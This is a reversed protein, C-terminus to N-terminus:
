DPLPKGRTEPLFILAIIGVLFFFSMYTCANRFADVRDAATADMPVLAKQLKGLTLPASAAVYRGVNYCFSTGTSRLRIPFLEPLYLAFGAFLALQFFGMVSSMWIDQVGNFLQFFSITAVMAAIFGMAFAPKRGIKQALFTFAIMGFFAGTNQFIGNVGKWYTAASAVEKDILSKMEVTLGDAGSVASAGKAVILDQRLSNTIVEGVLEPSFFGIGWVGIVGAVCLVMGALANKRLRDDGFLSAYSGFKVGTAKGERRAQVWKDPEKLKLQILVCLIAPLAGILFMYKWASAPTITGEQGLRALLMSVLGATINGAASLAQLLGLAPTRARDPLTDAVLAVALGFVGGVGLGTIFRYIMFDLTGVSFASMGTCLSYLLVTITLTKARGIRDGISGFIMGGTAWGIMFISTAMGGYDKVIDTTTNEPLLSKLADNRALIFIQQDMCDLIWSMAAMIFVFWHYSTLERYWPRLAPSVSHDTMAEHEM